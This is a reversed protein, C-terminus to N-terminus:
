EAAAPPKGNMLLIKHPLVLKKHTLNDHRFVGQERRIEETLGVTYMRIEGMFVNSDLCGKSIEDLKLEWEATQEPKKLEEPVLQLLQRAKSTFFIESGKKVLLFGNFLKEIIDARAAVTGLGSTEGLIKAMRSDQTEMYRVPNEIASFLAAETFRATLQVYQEAPIIAHHDFVRADNM